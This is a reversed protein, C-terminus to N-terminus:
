PQQTSFTELITEVGAPKGGKEHYHVFRLTGDADVVFTHYRAIGAFFPAPPEAAADYRRMFEREFDSIMPFEVGLEEAFVRHCYPSDVSVGAV